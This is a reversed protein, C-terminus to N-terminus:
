KIAIHIEIENGNPYFEFDTSYARQQPANEDAFYDWVETWGDIAIQPMEGKHKFVLYQGAPIVVKQLPVSVPRNKGDFGVLVNFQGSADSEYDFYVGYVREGSKYDVDVTKDFQQWLAGIKGKDTSMETENDTRISLGHLIKESVKRITM